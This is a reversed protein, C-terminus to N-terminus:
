KGLDAAAHRAQRLLSHILNPDPNHADSAVAAELIYRTAVLIEEDRTPCNAGRCTTLLDFIKLLSRKANISNKSLVFAHAAQLAMLIFEELGPESILAQIETDIFSSEMLARTDPSNDIENKLQEIEANLINIIETKIKRFKDVMFGLKDEASLKTVDTHENM